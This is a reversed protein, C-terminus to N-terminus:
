RRKLLDSLKKQFVVGQHIVQHTAGDQYQTHGCALIEEGDQIFDGLLEGPQRGGNTEFRIPTWRASISGEARMEALTVQHLIGWNNILLTGDAVALRPNAISGSSKRNYAFRETKGGNTNMLVIGEFPFPAVNSVSVNEVAFAVETDSVATVETAKSIRGGQNLDLSNIASMSATKEDYSVTGLTGHAIVLKSGAWAFARASEEDGSLAQATTAVSLAEAGSRDDLAVVRNAFLAWIKGEHLALDRVPEAFRAVETYESPNARDVKVVAYAGKENARLNMTAYLADNALAFHPYDLHWYGKWKPHPTVGDACIAALAPSTGLSNGAEGGTQPLASEESVNLKLSQTEEQGSATKLKVRIEWDGGMTFYVRSIRYAGNAERAPEVQTPASGHGMGPMFLSVKFAGPAAIVAGKADRWTLLLVSEEPSQPGVAWALEAKAAGQAFELSVPAAFNASASLGATLLAVVMMWIKM